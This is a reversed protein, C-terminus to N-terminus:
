GNSPPVVAARGIPATELEEHMERVAEAIATQAEPEGEGSASSGIVLQPERQEVAVPVIQFSREPTATYKGDVPNGSLAKQIASRTSIADIRAIEEYQKPGTVRLIVYQTAKGTKAM